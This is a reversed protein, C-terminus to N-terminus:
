NLLSLKISDVSDASLNVKICESYLDVNDINSETLYSTDYICKKSTDYNSLSYKTLDKEKVWIVRYKIKSAFDDEM